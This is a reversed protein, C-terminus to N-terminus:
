APAVWKERQSVRDLHAFRRRCAGSAEFDSGEMSQLLANGQDGVPGVLAAAQQQDYLRVIIEDSGRPCTSRPRTRSGSRGVTLLKGWSRTRRVSRTPSPSCAWSRVAAGRHICPARTPVSTCTMPQWGERRPAGGFLPVDANNTRDREHAWPEDDPLELLKDVALDHRGLASIYAALPRHFTTTGRMPVALPTLCRDVRRVPLKRDLDFSWGSQRPVRFCPHVMFVVLRGQGKLALAAQGVVDEPPAM